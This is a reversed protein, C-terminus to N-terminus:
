KELHHKKLQVGSAINIKIKKGIFIKENGPKEGTGPRIWAIDNKKIISGKELDRKLIISRKILNKRGSIYIEPIINSSIYSM